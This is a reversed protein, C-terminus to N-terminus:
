PRRPEPGGRRRAHEDPRAPPLPAAHHARADGPLCTENGPDLYPTSEVTLAPVAMGVLRTSLQQDGASALAAHVRHDADTMSGAEPRGCRM